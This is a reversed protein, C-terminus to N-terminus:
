VVVFGHEDALANMRTGAAFDDPSQTCGHLMVVMPLPTRGDFGSPVYLKYPRTGARAAHSGAIFKAGRPAPGGIEPRTEVVTFEADIVEGDDAAAAPAAQQRLHRQILATAERLSGARTLRTAELLAAATFGNKLDM